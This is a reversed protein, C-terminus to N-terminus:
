RLRVVVSNQQHESGQDNECHHSERSQMLSRALQRQRPEALSNQVKRLLTVSITNERRMVAGAYEELQHVIVPRRVNQAVVTRQLTVSLPPALQM